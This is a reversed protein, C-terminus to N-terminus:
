VTCHVGCNSTVTIARSADTVGDSWGTFVYQTGPENGAVIKQVSLSHQTGQRWSVQMGSSVVEGDVTLDAIAAAGGPSVTFSVTYIGVATGLTADLTAYPQEGVYSVVIQGRQDVLFFYPVENVGYIDFITGSSDYLYTWSEGYSRIFLAVDNATAGNWPGAISIFVVGGSGYKAHLEVLVPAMNQCHSCWPEMFDLLVVKGRFSSLSVSEGTLGNSGVVPLTFDPATGSQARVTAVVSFAYLTLLVVVLWRSRESRCYSISKM